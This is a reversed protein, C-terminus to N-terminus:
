IDRLEKYYKEITKINKGTAEKLKKQTVLGIIWYDWNYVASVLTTLTKKSRISGTVRNVIKQKESRSLNAEPNFIVRRPYNPFPVPNQIDLINSIIKNVENEPIPPLCCINNIGHIKNYIYNPSINPNLAKFQAGINFLTHNRKGHVIIKPVFAKAAEYKEDPFVLYDQRDFDIEHLNDYQITEKEGTEIAYRKKKKKYPLSTPTNVTTGLWTISDNNIYVNKDYSLITYQTAKAANLDVKIGM